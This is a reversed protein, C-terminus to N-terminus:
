CCRCPFPPHCVSSPFSILFIPTEPRVPQGTAGAQHHCLAGSPCRDGWAPDPEILVELAQRGAMARCGDPDAARDFVRGPGRWAKRAADPRWTPPAADSNREAAAIEGSARETGAEEEGSASFRRAPCRRHIVGPCGAGCAPASRRRAAARARARYRTIAPAGPAHAGPSLDVGAMANAM